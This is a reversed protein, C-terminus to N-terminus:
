ADIAESNGEYDGYGIQTRDADVTDFVTGIVALELRQEICLRTRSYINM